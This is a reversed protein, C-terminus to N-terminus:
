NKMRLYLNVYFHTLNYIFNQLRKTVRNSKTAFFSSLYTLQKLPPKVASKNEDHVLNTQYIIILALIIGLLLLLKQKNTKLM